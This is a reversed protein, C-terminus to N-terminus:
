RHAIHRPASIPKHEQYASNRGPTSRRTNTPFLVEFIHLRKSAKAHEEIKKTTRRPEAFPDFIPSGFANKWFDHFNLKKM